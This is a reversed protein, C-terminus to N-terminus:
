REFTFLHYRPGGAAPRVVEEGVEAAQSSARFEFLPASGEVFVYGDPGVSRVQASVAPFRDAGDAPAVILKGAALFALPYATWYDAIFAEGGRSELEDVLGPYPSGSSRPALLSAQGWLNGAALGATLLFLLVYLSAQRRRSLAIEAATSTGTRGTLRTRGTFGWDLLLYLTAPLSLLLPLLYRAASADQAYASTVVLLFTALTTGGFMVLPPIPGPSGGDALGLERRRQLLLVALLVCLVAMSPGAWGALRWSATPVVQGFLLLLREPWTILPALRFPQGHGGGGAWAFAMSSAISFVIHGAAIALLMRLGSSGEWLRRLFGALGGPRSPSLFALEAVYLLSFYFAAYFAVQTGEPHNMGTWGELTEDGLLILPAALALALLGVGALALFVGRSRGRLPRFLILGNISWGEAAFLPRNEALARAVLLALPVVMITGVLPNVFLGFGAVTGLAVLRAAGPDRLRWCREFLLLFITGLLLVEAFGGRAKVTWLNFFPTGLATWLLILGTEMQRFFRRLLFYTAVLFALSYLLPVLRLSFASEGLLAFSAAVSWPELAGLYSQGAYFVPWSEGALIDRAMLGVVAEDSDFDKLPVIVAGLRTLLAVLLVIALISGAILQKKM